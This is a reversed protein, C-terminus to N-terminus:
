KRMNNRRWVFSEFLGEFTGADAWFGKVEGYDLKGIKAYYNNVDTIELEGRNSLKLNDIIDFVGHGYVYVGLVALNSHPLDPKELINILEGDKIHAAGFGKVDIVNKLFVKALKSQRIDLNLNNEFINDGLIVVFNDKGVFNKSVRMADAIGGKPNDQTKYTLSVGLESGSGLLKSFDGIFQKDSIVLIDKIGSNVLTKIPFMIMQQDYIPLLHKNTIETLPKMRTGLGGALIVGNM